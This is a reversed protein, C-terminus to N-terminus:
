GEQTPLPTNWHIQANTAGWPAGSISGEEKDIYIDTLAPCSQFSNSQISNIGNGIRVTTLNNCSKFVYTSINKCGNGILVSKLNDCSAFCQSGLAYVNDTIEIDKISDCGYFAYNSISSISQPSIFKTILINNVYLNGGYAFPISTGNTFSCKCWNELDKLYLDHKASKNSTFAYGYIQTIGNGITIKKINDSDFFAYSGISTVSDPITIEELGLCTAFAREGIKTINNPIVINKLKHCVIFAYNGIETVGAWDEATIETVTRDIVQALKNTGTPINVNATVKSILCGADPIIEVAGNKTIDVTKEQERRGMIDLVYVATDAAEEAYKKAENAWYKDNEVSPSSPQCLISHKCNIYAPTTTSLEGAYVGITCLNAGSIVPVTCTNDVIDVDHFQGNWIFRATKSEHEAWEEDFSFVIKYNSNGCVIDGDRKQYTAIKNKVSIHLIIPKTEM